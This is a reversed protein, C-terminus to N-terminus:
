RPAVALAASDWALLDFSATLPDLLPHVDQLALGSGNCFLLRPGSGRREWSLEVGNVRGVPM